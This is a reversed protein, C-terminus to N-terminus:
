KRARVSDEAIIRALRECSELNVRGREWMTLERRFAIEDGDIGQSTETPRALGARM